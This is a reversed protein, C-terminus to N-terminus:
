ANYYIVQKVWTAMCYCNYQNRGWSSKTKQFVSWWYHALLIYMYRQLGLNRNASILCKPKGLCISFCFCVFKVKRLDWSYPLVSRRYQKCRSGGESTVHWFYTTTYLNIQGREKNARRWRYVIEDLRLNPWVHNHYQEIIILFFIWRTNFEDVSLPPSFPSIFRSHIYWFIYFYDDIM